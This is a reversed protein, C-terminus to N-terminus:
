WRDAHCESGPPSGTGCCRGRPWPPSQPASRRWRRAPSSPLPGEPPAPVGGPPPAGRGADVPVGETLTPPLDVTPRLRWLQGDGHFALIAVRQDVWDGPLGAPDGNPRLFSPAPPSRHLRSRTRVPPS